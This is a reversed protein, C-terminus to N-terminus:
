TYTDQGHVQWRLAKELTIPLAITIRALKVTLRTRGMIDFYSLKKQYDRRSPRILM